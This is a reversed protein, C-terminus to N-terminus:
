PTSEKWRLYVNKVSGKTVTVQGKVQTGGERLATVTYTGAPLDVYLWPGTVQEGPVELKVAGKADAITVSVQSLYARAGAVFILKLPFPPYTAAREELGMGTSFYRISDSKHLPITEKSVTGDEATYELEIGDGSSTVTATSSAASTTELSGALALSLVFPLGFVLLRFRKM